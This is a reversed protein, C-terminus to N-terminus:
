GSRHCVQAVAPVPYAPLPKPTSPAPRLVLPAPVNFWFLGYSWATVALLFLAPLAAWYAQPQKCKFKHSKGLKERLCSAGGTRAHKQTRKHRRGICCSM